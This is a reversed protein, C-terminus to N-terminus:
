SSFKSELKMGAATDIILWVESAKLLVCVDTHTYLLKSVSTRKLM